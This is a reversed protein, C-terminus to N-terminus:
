KDTKAQNAFFAKNEKIAANRAETFCKMLLHTFEPTSPYVPYRPQDNSKLPEERVVSSEQDPLAPTNM